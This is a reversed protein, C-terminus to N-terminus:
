ELSQKLVFYFCFSLFTGIPLQNTGMVECSETRIEEQPFSQLQFSALERDEVRNLSLVSSYSPRSLSLMENKLNLVSVHADGHGSKNVNFSFLLISFASAFTM